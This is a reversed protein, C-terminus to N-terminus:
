QQHISKPSKQHFTKGFAEIFNVFYEFQVIFKENEECYFLYLCLYPMQSM